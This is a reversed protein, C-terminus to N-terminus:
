ILQLAHENLLSGLVAIEHLYHRTGCDARHPAAGGVVGEMVAGELNELAKMRGASRWRSYAVDLNLLMIMGTEADVGAM